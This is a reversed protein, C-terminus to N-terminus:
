DDLSKDQQINNVEKAKEAAVEVEVGVVVEMEEPCVGRGQNGGMGQKM